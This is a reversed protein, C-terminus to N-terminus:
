LMSTVLEACTPFVSHPHYVILVVSFVVEGVLLKKPLDSDNQHNRKERALFTGLHNLYVSFWLQNQKM